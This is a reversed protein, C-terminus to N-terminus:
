RTQRYTRVFGRWLLWTPSPSRQEDDSDHKKGGQRHVERPRRLPLQARPQEDPTNMRILPDSMSENRTALASETRGAAAIGLDHDALASREFATPQGHSPEDLAARPRGISCLVRRRLSSFTQRSSRRFHRQVSTGNGNNNPPMRM